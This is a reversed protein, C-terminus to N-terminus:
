KIDEIFIFQGFNGCFIQRIEARGQVLVYM